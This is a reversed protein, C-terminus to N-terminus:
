GAFTLCIAKVLPIDEKCLRRVIPTTRVLSNGDRSRVVAVDRGTPPPLASNENKRWNGASGTSFCLTVRPTTLKASAFWAEWLFPCLCMIFPPRSRLDMPANASMARTAVPHEVFPAEPPVATVVVELLAAVLPVVPPVVGIVAAAGVVVAELLPILPVYV